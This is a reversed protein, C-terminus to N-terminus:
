AHEALGATSGVKALRTAQRIRLREFDRVSAEYFPELLEPQKAKAEEWAAAAKAGKRVGDKPM